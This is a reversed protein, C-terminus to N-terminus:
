AKTARLVESVTTEGSRVKSFGAQRLKTLNGAEM